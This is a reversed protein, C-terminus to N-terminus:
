LVHRTSDLQYSLYKDSTIVDLFFYYAVRQTIINGSLLYAGLDLKLNSEEHASQPICYHVFILLFINKM